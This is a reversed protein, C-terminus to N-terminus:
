IESMGKLGQVESELETFAPKGRGADGRDTLVKQAALWEPSGTRSPDDAVARAATAADAVVDPAAASVPIATAIAATASAPEAAAPAAAPLSQSMVV